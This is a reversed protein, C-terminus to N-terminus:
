RRQYRSLQESGLSRDKPYLNAAVLYKCTKGNLEVGVAKTGELLVRQVASDTVITLNDPKPTLLDNATSRLGKNSSNILVSM